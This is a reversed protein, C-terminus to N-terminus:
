LAVHVMSVSSKMVGSEPVGQKTLTLLDLMVLLVFLDDQDKTASLLWCKKAMWALRQVVKSPVEMKTKMKHAKDVVIKQFEFQKAM